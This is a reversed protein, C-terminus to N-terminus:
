KSDEIGYRLGSDLLVVRESGDPKVDPKGIHILGEAIKRDITDMTTQEEYAYYRLAALRSVFHSTGYKLAM